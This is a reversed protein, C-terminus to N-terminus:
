SKKSDKLQSKLEKLLLKLAAKIKIKEAESIEIRKAAKKGGFKNYKLTM